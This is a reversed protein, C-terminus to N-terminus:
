LVIMRCYKTYFKLKYSNIIGTVYLVMVRLLNPQAMAAATGTQHSEKRYGQVTTLATTVTREQKVSATMIVDQLHVPRIVPVTQITV